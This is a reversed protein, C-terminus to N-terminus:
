FPLDDDDAHISSLKKQAPNRIDAAIAESAYYGSGGTEVSLCGQAYSHAIAACREREAGLAAAIADIVDKHRLMSKLSKAEMVIGCATHFIDSQIADLNPEQTM